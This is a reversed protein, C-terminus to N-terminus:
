NCSKQQDVRENWDIRRGCDPCYNKEGKKGLYCGCECWYALFNKYNKHPIVQKPQVSPATDREMGWYANLKDMIRNYEGDTVVNDIWMRLMANACDRYEIPKIEPQDFPMREIFEACTRYVADGIHDQLFIDPRLDARRKDIIELIAQKISMNECALQESNGFLEVCNLAKIAMDLALNQKNRTVAAKPLPIDVKMDELLKQAEKLSLRKM